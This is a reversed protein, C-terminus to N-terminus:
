AAIGGLGVRRRIDSPTAGSQRLARLGTSGLSKSLTEGADDVLLRHHHYVPQPLGLLAQLLRHVPTAHYLDLGRVVHTVCQLADDLVVSLHYSSPADWRWLVVDGWIAPDASLAQTTGTSSELFTLQGEGRPFDLGRV